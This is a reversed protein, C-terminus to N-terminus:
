RAGGIRESLRETLEHASDGDLELLCIVVAEGERGGLGPLGAHAPGITGTPLGANELALLARQHVTLQPM